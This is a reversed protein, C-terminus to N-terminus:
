HSSFSNKQLVQTAIGTIATSLPLPSSEQQPTNHKVCENYYDIFSEKFSSRIGKEKGYTTPMVLLENHIASLLFPFQKEFITAPLLSKIKKLVHLGFLATRIDLVGYVVQEKWEPTDHLKFCSTKCVAIIQTSTFEKEFEGLILALAGSIFATACSTGSKFTYLPQKKPYAYSCGLITEGPAVFSPGRTKEHQNFTSLSCTYTHTEKNYSCTFSGVSFPVNEFRAPYSMRGPKKTGENGTACCVYPFLSLTKELKKFLPDHPDVTDDLKLSLNVIHTHYDAARELAHTIHTVDTTTKKGEQLAKIVRLSCRPALGCLGQDANLLQQITPPSFHLPLTCNPSLRAGIISATHTAHDAMLSPHNELPLPTPLCEAVVKQESELTAIHFKSFGANGFILTNKVRKGEPSFLKKDSLFFLINREFLDPSGNTQFYTDLATTTKHTLYELIWSPLLQTISRENRKNAQTHHLIFTALNKFPDLSTNEFPVTNHPESLFNGEIELDPHRTFTHNTNTVNCGFIGTDLLTVTIGKGLSPALEWLPYSHPIYPYPQQFSHSPLSPRLGTTPFLQWWFTKEYSPLSVIKKFNGHTTASNKKDIRPPYQQQQKIAELEDRTFFTKSLPLANHFVFAFHLFAIVRKKM